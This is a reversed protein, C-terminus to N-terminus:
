MIEHVIRDVGEILDLTEASTPERGAKHDSLNRIDGLHQIKRWTPIDVIGNNKLLDNLNSITAKKRSPLSRSAAVKKLHGELVVGAVSCAARLYGRRHLERAADLQDDFLDAQVMTRLDYLSSKFRNQLSALIAYQTQLRMLVVANTNFENYSPPGMGLMYDEIAYTSAAIIKRKPDKVYHSVFDFLRAPLLQRIVECSESYWSQYEIAFNPPPEPQFGKSFKGRADVFGGILGKGRDLLAELDRSYKDASSAM